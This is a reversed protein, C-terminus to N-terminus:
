DDTSFAASAVRCALKKREEDWSVTNYSWATKRSLKIPVM